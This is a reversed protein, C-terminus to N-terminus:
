QGRIKEELSTTSYGKIFPLSKVIGGKAAVIDAGVIDEPQWDGGKVLVDPQVQQILKYPTDEEFIIVADVFSLAALIHARNKEDKIPRNKGKLRQVSADSNLGIVLYNGLDAAESLYHIHGYHLLDFCGNTFVVKKATQRWSASLHKLESLNLIKEQIHEFNTM